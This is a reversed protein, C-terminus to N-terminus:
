GLWSFGIWEGLGNKGFLLKINDEWRRRSRRLPRKGEPKVLCIKYSNRTEAHASCVGGMENEKIKDGYYHKTFLVIKQNYVLM